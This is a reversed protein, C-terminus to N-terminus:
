LPSFDDRHIGKKIASEYDSRREPTSIRYCRNHTLSGKKNLCGTVNLKLYNTVKDGNYKM